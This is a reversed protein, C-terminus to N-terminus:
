SRTHHTHHITNTMNVTLAMTHSEHPEFAGTYLRSLAGCQSSPDMTPKMTMTPSSTTPTSTPMGICVGSVTEGAGGEAKVVGGQTVEWSVESPYEGESVAITYCGNPLDCLSDTDSAGGDLTGTAQVEGNTGTITYAAGNWGDGWSDDMKVMFCVGTLQRETAGEADTTTTPAGEADTPGRKTQRPPVLGTSNLTQGNGGVVMAALAMM